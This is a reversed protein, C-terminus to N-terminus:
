MDICEATLRKFAAAKLDESLKGKAILMAFVNKKHEGGGYM